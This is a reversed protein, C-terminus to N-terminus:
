LFSLEQWLGVARTVGLRSAEELLARLDDPTRRFTFLAANDRIEGRYRCHLRPCPIDSAEEQADPLSEATCGGSTLTLRLADLAAELWIERGKRSSLYNGVPIDPPVPPLFVPGLTYDVYPHSVGVPCPLAEELARALQGEEPIGPRQFDLLLSDFAGRRLIEELQEAIRPINHGQFPMRDDLILLGGAPIDGPLNTLGPGGPSFHCAMYGTLAPLSAASTMERATMALYLPLVM